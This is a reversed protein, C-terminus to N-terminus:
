FRKSKIIEVKIKQLARSYIKRINEINMKLKEAINKYDMDLTLRMTIIEQERDDMEALLEKVFKIDENIIAREEQNLNDDKINEIEIESEYRKKNEVRYYDILTNRAITYIQKIAHEKDKPKNEQKFFKLFSTQTLDNATDYDKTRFLLYRFLPAFLELYLTDYDTYILDKEKAM